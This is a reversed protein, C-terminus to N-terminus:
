ADEAQSRAAALLEGLPVGLDAGEVDLPSAGRRQAKLVYLQGESDQIQVSGGQRAEELLAALNRKAQALTYITM